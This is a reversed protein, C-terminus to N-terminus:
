TKSRKTQKKDLNMQAVCQCKWIRNSIWQKSKRCFHIRHSLLCSRCCCSSSRLRSILTPIEYHFIAYDNLCFFRNFIECTRITLLFLHIYQALWKKHCTLQKGSSISINTKLGYFCQLWIFKWQVMSFANIRTIMITISFKNPATFMVSDTCYNQSLVYNICLPVM